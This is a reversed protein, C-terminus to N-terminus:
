VSSNGASDALAVAEATLKVIEDWREDELLTRSALWSGGCAAVNPLSLWEKLNHQNIGGTPVFLVDRYPAYLSKLKAPGGSAAAPFFKVCSISRELAMELALTSDVGPLVPVKNEVAWDVVSANFGPSVIFAAGSDVAAKAQVVTRVTGAGVLIDNRQSMMNIVQAASDTRFTIEAVPLGGKVLSDALRLASGANELAIVPIIKLRQITEVFDEFVAM